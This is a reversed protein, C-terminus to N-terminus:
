ESGQRGSIYVRKLNRERKETIRKVIRDPM